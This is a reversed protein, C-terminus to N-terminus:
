VDLRDNPDPVTSVESGCVSCRGEDILKLRWEEQKFYAKRWIGESRRHDVVAQIIMGIVWAGVLWIVVDWTINIM